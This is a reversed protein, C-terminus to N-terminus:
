AEAGRNADILRAALERRLRAREAENKESESRARLAEIEVGEGAVAAGPAAESIVVPEAGKDENEGAAKTTVRRERVSEAGAAKGEGAKSEGPKAAAKGDAAPAAQAAPQARVVFDCPALAVFAASVLLARVAKVRAGETKCSLKDQVPM